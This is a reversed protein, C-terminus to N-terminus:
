RLWRPRMSEPPRLARSPARPPAWASPSLRRPLGPVPAPRGALAYEVELAEYAEDFGRRTAANELFTKHDHPVPQYRLDTM